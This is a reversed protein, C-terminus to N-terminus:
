SKDCEANDLRSVTCITGRGCAVREAHSGVHCTWSRTSWPVTCSVVIRHSVVRYVMVRCVVRCVLAYVCADSCYESVLWLYTVGMRVNCVTRVRRV